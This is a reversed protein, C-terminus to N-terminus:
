EMKIAVVETSRGDLLKFQVIIFEYKRFIDFDITVFRSKLVLVLSSFSRSHFFHSSVRHAAGETRFTAIFVANNFM